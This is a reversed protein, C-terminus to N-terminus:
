APSLAAILDQYLKTKRLGAIARDLLEISQQSAGRMMAVAGINISDGSPFEKESEPLTDIWETLTVLRGGLIMGPSADRILESVQDVNGIRSYIAM